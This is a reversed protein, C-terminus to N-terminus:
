GGQDADDDEPDVQNELVESEVVRCNPTPPGINIQVKEMKQENDREFIGLYRGLDVLADRKNHLKFEVVDSDKDKGRNIKISSIAAAKSRPIQDFSTLLITNDNTVKMYDQINSFGLKALEAVVHEAKLQMTECIAERLEMLRQRVAPMAMLDEAASKPNAYGSADAARKGNFDILYEMCFHHQQETLANYLYPKIDAM